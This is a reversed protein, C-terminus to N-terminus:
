KLFIKTFEENGKKYAKETEDKYNKTYQWNWSLEKPTKFGFFGLVKKQNELVEKGMWNQGIVIIGADINKVINEEGLTTHRNEIWTLREILKQYISNTQGWRVSTFFVVADSEFLPKTIKWLEDYPNNISAWCRHHGSPNQEKGGLASEKVGCNNGEPSSVNGECPYINMRSVDLCVVQKGEVELKAKIKEALRTSKAKEKEELWRSSTALLLVKNKRKLFNITNKLKLNEKKMLALM